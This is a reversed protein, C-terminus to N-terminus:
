LGLELIPANSLVGRPLGNPRTVKFERGYRGRDMFTGDGDMGLRTRM